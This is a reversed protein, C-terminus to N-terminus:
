LTSTVYVRPEKFSRKRTAKTNETVLGAASGKLRWELAPEDGSPTNWTQVVYTHACVHALVNMCARASRRVYPRFSRYFPKVCARGGGKVTESRFWGHRHLLCTSLTFVNDPQKSFFRKWKMICCINLVFRGSSLFGRIPIHERGTRRWRDEWLARSGTDLGRHFICGVSQEWDILVLKCREYKRM